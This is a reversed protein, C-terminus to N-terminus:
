KSLTDLTEEDDTENSENSENSSVSEESSNLLEFKSSRKHSNLKHASTHNAKEAALIILKGALAIFGVIAAAFIPAVFFVWLQNLPPTISSKPNALVAVATSRAPNLGVNTAYYTLLAAVVYAVGIYGVYGKKAKGNEDMNNIATAVVIVTAITEIVLASIVTFTLNYQFHFKSFPFSVNYSNTAALYWDSMKMDKLGVKPTILPITFAAAFAGVFQAIIYFLGDLYKTKGTLMAAITVAPNVHSSHLRIFASIACSYALGTVLITATDTIINPGQISNFFISVAYIVLMAFFSAAFEIAIRLILPFTPKANNQLGQSSTDTMNSEEICAYYCM